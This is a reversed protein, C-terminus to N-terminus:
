LNSFPLSETLLFELGNQLESGASNSTFDWEFGTEFNHTKGKITLCRETVSVRIFDTERLTDELLEVELEPM